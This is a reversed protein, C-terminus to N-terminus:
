GLRITDWPLVFAGDYDHDIITLQVSRDGPTVAYFTSEFFIKEHAPLGAPRVVAVRNGDGNPTSDGYEGLFRLGDGSGTEIRTFTFAPITLPVGILRQLGARDHIQSAVDRQLRLRGGPYRITLDNPQSVVPNGDVGDGVDILRRYARRRQTYDATGDGNVDYLPIGGQKVDIDGLGTWVEYPEPLEFGGRKLPTSAM